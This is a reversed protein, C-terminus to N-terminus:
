HYPDTQHLEGTDVKGAAGLTFKRIPDLHISGGFFLRLPPVAM